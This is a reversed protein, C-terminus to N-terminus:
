LSSLVALRFLHKLRLLAAGPIASGIAAKSASNNGNKTLSNMTETM